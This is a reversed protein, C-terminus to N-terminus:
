VGAALFFNPRFNSCFLSLRLHASEPVILRLGNTSMGPHLQQRHFVPTLTAPSYVVGSNRYRDTEWLRVENGLARLIVEPHATIRGSSIPDL